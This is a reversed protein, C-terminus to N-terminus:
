SNCKNMLGMKQAESQIHKQFEEKSISNFKNLIQLNRQYLNMDPATRQHWLHYCKFSMQKWNLFNTVKLSQFDDEAGWGWFLESWGGLKIIADKRFLTIGGCIPVKQHDTEGRGPRDIALIDGLGLSSENPDLDIVSQYPNVFEYNNLEELSKILHDPHMILDSDGFVIVNTQARKLGVNLAWNKNFPGSNEIFVHTGKFNLHSIKSHSDQEVIMIEIGNFGSLWDIVRRLNLIRDMQFRYPIIYTFKPVNVPQSM